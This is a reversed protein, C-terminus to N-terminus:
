NKSFYEKLFTVGLNIYIGGINKIPFGRYYFIERGLVPILAYRATLNVGIKKGFQYDFGLAAFVGVGYSLQSKFISKFFSYSYPAAIIIAPAFGFLLIPKLKWDTRNQLFYKELGANFTISFLRSRRDLDQMTGNTDLDGTSRNDIIYSFNINGFFDADNALRYFMGGGLGYTYPGYFMHIGFLNKYRIVTDRKQDTIWKILLVNKPLFNPNGQEISDAYVSRFEYKIITDKRVNEIKLSDKPVVLLNLSDQPIRTEIRILGSSDEPSILPINQLPNITDPNSNLPVININASSDKAVNEPTVPTLPNQENPILVNNNLFNTDTILSPTQINNETKIELSDAAFCFAPFIVILLFLIGRQKM